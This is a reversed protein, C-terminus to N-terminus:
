QWCATTDGAAVAVTAVGVGIQGLPLTWHKAAVGTGVSVAIGQSGQEPTLVLVGPWVCVGVAVGDGFLKQFAM